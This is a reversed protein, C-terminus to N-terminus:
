LIGSCSKVINCLTTWLSCLTLITDDTIQPEEQVVDNRLTKDCFFFGGGGGACHM